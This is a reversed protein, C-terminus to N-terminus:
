AGYTELTHKIINLFRDGTTGDILRHDFTLSLYCIPRIAIMDDHGQTIVVPRKHVSGVGLIGAQGQNIIPTALLSGSIGHNTITFTGGRTEEPALRGARAREALDTIARALGVLNREDANQLVPVILGDDLAVAIGIHKRRHQKIGADTYAANMIPVANLGAIVAEVLYPMYSLKFGQAAFAARQAERHQVIRQMDVEIVSTVHPATRVASSLHEAIARRMPSIPLVETDADTPLTTVAQPTSRTALHRLVDQKTVRGGLGSGPIDDLNLAHDQAIRRVIPSFFRAPASAGFARDAAPAAAAQGSVDVPDDVRALLVGISVTTGEPVHISRLIGAAPSPVEISVKDTEIELLPEYLRIPDGPQKLWRIITGEVVSESLKPMHIDTPM